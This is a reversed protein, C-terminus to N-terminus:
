RTKHKATETPAAPAPPPAPAPAPPGAAGARKSEEKAKLQRAHAEAQATQAAKLAAAERAAAEARLKDGQVLKFEAREKAAALQASQAEGKERTKTKAVGDGAQYRVELVDRPWNDGISNFAERQQSAPKDPGAALAWGSAKRHLTIATRM